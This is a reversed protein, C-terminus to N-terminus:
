LQRGLLPGVNSMFIRRRAGPDIGSTGPQSRGSWPEYGVDIRCIGQKGKHSFNGDTCKDNEQRRTKKDTLRHTDEESTTERCFTKREDTIAPSCENLQTDDSSM